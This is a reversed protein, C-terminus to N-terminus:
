VETVFVCVDLYHSVMFHSTHTCICIKWKVHETYGEKEIGKATSQQWQMTMEGASLKSTQCHKCM